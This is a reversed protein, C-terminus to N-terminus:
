SSYRARRRKSVKKTARKRQYQLLREQHARVAEEHQKKLLECAHAQGWAQGCLYSFQAGCRCTVHDCGSVKQVWKKCACCQKLKKGQVFDTFLDETKGNLKMWEQYKECTSGEHFEVRCNLCYRKHCQLCNFDYDGPNFFFMYQCDATPCCSYSDSHDEIFTRFVQENYKELVAPEFFLGMEDM